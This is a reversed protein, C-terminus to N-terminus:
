KWFPKTGEYLADCRTVGIDALSRDDLTLLERRGRWVLYMRRADMRRLRWWKTLAATAPAASGPVPVTLAAAGDITSRCPM